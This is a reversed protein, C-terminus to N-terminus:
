NTENIKIKLKKGRVLLYLNQLQHVHKIHIGYKDDLFIGTESIPNFNHIKLKALNGIQRPKIDWWTTEDEAYFGFRLLWEETLPIPKVQDYTDTDGCIFVVTEKNLEKICALENDPGYLVYNGFMFEGGNM